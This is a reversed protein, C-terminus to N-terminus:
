ARVLGEYLSQYRGSTHKANLHNDIIWLAAKQQIDYSHATTRRIAEGLRGANGVPFLTGAQPQYDLIERHPQIDSLICPLGCAMAELVANPMGETRSSSVLFDSAQLYTQINTVRGALIIKGSKCLPELAKRLVGEGFFIMKADPLASKLFGEAACIPDKLPSLYGTVAFLKHELPLGLQSRIQRKEATAAPFFVEQDVGNPIFDFSIGHEQMFKKSLAHSVIVPKEIRSLARLHLPAMLYRGVWGFDYTYNEFLSGRITAITHTMHSVQSSILDARFGCSHVIDPNYRSVYDRIRRQARFFSAFHGLGFSSVPVKIRIFDDILSDQPEPSLTLIQPLFHQRDLYKVLNLLQLTPGCKRLTSAVYLIKIMNVRGRQRM